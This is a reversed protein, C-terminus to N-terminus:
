METPLTPPSNTPRAPATAAGAGRRHADPANLAESVAGLLHRTAATDPHDDGLVRSRSHLTGELLDRARSHAGLATLTRALKHASTLTHPHDDGLVRRRRTLTDEHLDKARAHEGAVDLDDALDSACRLTRPHNDDLIRIHRHLTDQHLTRAQAHEGLERLDNALNRESNLTDQHEAGLLHRRRTLTDADLAHARDFEGLDFLNLALNKASKLTDEDDDGFTRRRRALTDRNLALAESHLGLERLNHALNNAYFLTARHDYGFQSRGAELARRFLPLATRPNGTTQLYTAMRDLLWAVDARVTDTDRSADTAARVHPLLQRWIDWRQPNDWIDDPLAARLMRVVVAPWPECCPDPTRSRAKLLGAPVRHMMVPDASVIMGRRRLLGIKEALALPDALVSALRAPLVSTDSHHTLVARPVPAPGCWALLSLLDMATPDDAALQDFSLAWTAAAPRSHGGPDHSHVTVACEDLARLYETVALGGMTLSSGAQDIVQPLDGVADAVLDADARNIGPIWSRLVAISESRDLLPMDVTASAVGHWVPDRSTILV